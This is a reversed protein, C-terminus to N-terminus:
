FGPWFQSPLKDDKWLSLTDMLGAVAIHLFFGGYISKTRMALTGLVVGAIIAGHAELYPKGYHIMCYPVAMVFVASFGFARRMAGLMWGRFFFELAFFQIFYVFEWVLFDFWSRSAQKYFPYYSGFDEEQAVILMPVLILGLMVGYMWLHKIFGETRLGHDLLPDKPFLVRWIVIPVAVYGLVRAASWWTYGYLSNFHGVKLFSLGSTELAQLEPRITTEYFGRGGYYEHLTLIVATLCLCVAPRYDLENKAPDLERERAVDQQIARWFRRAIFYLPVAIIILLPVPLLAKFLPHYSVGELWGIDKVHDLPFPLEPITEAPAFNSPKVTSM